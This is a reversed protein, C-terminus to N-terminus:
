LSQSETKGSRLHVRINRPLLLANCLLPVERHVPTRAMPHTEFTTPISRKVLVPLRLIDRAGRKALETALARSVEVREISEAGYQMALLTPLDEALVRLIPEDAPASLPTIPHTTRRERAV